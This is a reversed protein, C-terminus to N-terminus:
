LIKANCKRCWTGVADDYDPIVCDCIQGNNSIDGCKDCVQNIVVPLDLDWVEMSHSKDGKPLKSVGSSIIM